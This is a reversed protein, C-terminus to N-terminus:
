CGNGDRIVTRQAVDNNWKMVQVDHSTRVAASFGAEIARQAQEAIGSLAPDNRRERPLAAQLGCEPRSRFLDRAGNAAAVKGNFPCRSLLHHIKAHPKGALIKTIQNVQTQRWGEVEANVRSGSILRSHM